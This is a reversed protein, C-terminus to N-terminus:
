RDRTLLARGPNLSRQGSVTSPQSNAFVRVPTIWTLAEATRVRAVAVLEQGLLARVLEEPALDSEPYPLPRGQRLSRAQEPGVVVARMGPLCDQLPILRGALEERTMEAMAGLTMAEEVRFPGVALRRLGTLHAGCGLARGLDAALTRIYTGAACTVRITVSPLAVEQVELSFVRV